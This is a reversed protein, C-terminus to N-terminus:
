NEYGPMKSPEPTIFSDIPSNSQIEKCFSILNEKNNLKIAQVIDSRIENWRPFVKFGLIEFLASTFIATRLAERVAVPAYFFGMLIERNCYSNGIQGLGPATLRQACLDIYKKKGAIYAGSPAIGGGPNKILSGIILDTNLVPEKTQVFEGYCNDIIIITEPFSSKIKQTLKEIDEITLSNKFSYGKSRQIYIIKPNKGLKDIGFNELIKFKIGMDALSGCNKGNIVTELTDYPKGTICIIEDGPRSVASLAVFLAHTGSVFNTSVLAHETGFVQSFISNIVERGADSYGYGTTSAFHYESVKNQVFAKLIKESNKECNREIAYFQDKILELVDKTINKIKM